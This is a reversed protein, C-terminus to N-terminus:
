FSTIFLIELSIKPLESLTGHIYAVQSFNKTLNSYPFTFKKEFSRLKIFKISEFNQQLEKIQGGAIEHRKRGLNYIKNKTIKIFLFYFIGILLIFMLTILPEFFLLFTCICILISLEAMLKLYSQVMVSFNKCENMTNNILESSNKSFYFTIPRSIYSKLLNNSVDKYINWCFKNNWYYFFILFLNKLIYFLLFAFMVYFLINESNIMKFSTLYDYLFINSTKETNSIFEIIPIVLGIGLTEFFSASLLLIIFKISRKKYFSPLINFVEFFSKM